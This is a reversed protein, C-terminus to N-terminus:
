YTGYFIQDIGSRQIDNRFDNFRNQLAQGSESHNRGDDFYPKIIFLRSNLNSILFRYNHGQVANVIMNNGVLTWGANVFQSPLNQPPNIGFVGFECRGSCRPGPAINYRTATFTLPINLTTVQQQLNHFFANAM